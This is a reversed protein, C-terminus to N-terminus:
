LAALRDTLDDAVVPPLLAIRSATKPCAEETGWRLRTGSVSPRHRRSRSTPPPWYGEEMRRVCALATPSEIGPVQSLLRRTLAKQPLLRAHGPGYM